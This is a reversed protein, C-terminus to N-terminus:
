DDDGGGESEVAFRPVGGVCRAELQYEGSAGAFHVEIRETGRDAEVRYGNNPTAALLTTRAGDCRVTVLGPPGQWTQEVGRPRTTRTPAAPPGSTPAPAGPQASPSPSRSPGGGAARHKTPRRSPEGQPGGTPSTTAPAPQPRTQAVPDQGALLSQGAADIVAWTVASTAAVVLVWVLVGTLLTRRNM